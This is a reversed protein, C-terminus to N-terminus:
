VTMIDQEKGALMEDVKKIMEDTVVFQSVELARSEQISLEALMEAFQDSPNQTSEAEALDNRLSSIKNIWWSGFALSSLCITLTLVRRGLM